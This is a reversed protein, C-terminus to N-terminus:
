DFDKIIFWFSFISLIILILSLLYNSYLLNGISFLVSYIVVIGLCMRFLGTKLFSSSNNGFKSWGPGGPNVKLIFNNLIQHKEAPTIYTALIWIITTLIAGVVIKQWDFLYTDFFTLYISILLSSIM